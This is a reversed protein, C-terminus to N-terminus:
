AYKKGKNQQHHEYYEWLESQEDPSLTFNTSAFEGHYKLAHIDAIKGALEPDQYTGLHKNRGNIYLRVEFGWPKQTTRFPIGARKQRKRNWMNQKITCLRLNSKRNDLSNRNIHDLTRPGTGMIINHMHFKKQRSGYCAYGTILQWSRLSLREYDENDVISYKGQTLWIISSYAEELDTM